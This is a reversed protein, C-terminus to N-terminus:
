PYSNKIREFVMRKKHNKASLFMNTSICNVNKSYIIIILRDFYHMVKRTTTTLLDTELSRIMTAVCFKRSGKWDNEFQHNLEVQVQQMNYEERDFLTTNREQCRIILPIISSWFIDDKFKMSYKIDAMVFYQNYYQERIEKNSLIMALIIPTFTMSLNIYEDDAVVNRNTKWMMIATM